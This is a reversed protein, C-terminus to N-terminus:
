RPKFREALTEARHLTHEYQNMLQSIETTSTTKDDLRVTLLGLLNELRAGNSEMDTYGRGYIWRGLWRVIRSKDPHVRSRFRAAWRLLPYILNGGGFMAMLQANIEKEHIELVALRNRLAEAAGRIEPSQEPLNEYQALRSRIARVEGSLRKKVVKLRFAPTPLYQELGSALEVDLSNLVLGANRSSKLASEAETTPTVLRSLVPTANPSDAGNDEQFHRAVYDSLSMQGAPLNNALPSADQKFLPRSRASHSLSGGEAAPSDEPPPSTPENRFFTM